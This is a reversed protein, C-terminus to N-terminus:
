AARVYSRRRLESELTSYDKFGLKATVTEAWIADLIAALEDPMEARHAGVRGARV